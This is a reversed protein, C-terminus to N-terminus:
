ELTAEYVSTKHLYTRKGASDVFSLGLEGIEVRGYVNGGQQLEIAAVGKGGLIGCGYNALYQINNVTRRKGIARFDDSVVDISGTLEGGSLPLRNNLQTQVKSTTGSLYGLETQTTTSVTIKGNSNTILARSATLNQDTVSSASGTITNQKNNLATVLADLQDQVNSDLGNLYNLETPSATIDNSNYIRVWSGWTNNYKNRLYVKPANTAYTSIFQSIGSNTHELVVLSFAVVDPCNTLTTATANLACKYIGPSTYNNLDSNEPINIANFKNAIELKSDIKDWNPNMATIDAADTLEPKILNYKTTTTSM